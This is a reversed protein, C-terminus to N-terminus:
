FLIGPMIAIYAERHNTASLVHNNFKIDNWFGHNVLLLCLCLLAFFNFMPPDPKPKLSRGPSPEAETLQCLLFNRTSVYRKTM